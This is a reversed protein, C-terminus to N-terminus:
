GGCITASHQLETEEPKRPVDWCMAKVLDRCVAQERKRSAAFGLALLLWTGGLVHGRRSGRGLRRAASSM